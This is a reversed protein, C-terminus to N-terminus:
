RDSHLSTVVLVLFRWIAGWSVIKLSAVFTIVFVHSVTEAPLASEFKFGGQLLQM